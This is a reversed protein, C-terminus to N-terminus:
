LGIKLEIKGQQCIKPIVSLLGLNSGYWHKELLWVDSHTFEEFADGPSFVVALWLAPCLTISFWLCYKFNFVLFCCFCAQSTEKYLQCDMNGMHEWDLRKFFIIIKLKWFLSYHNKKTPHGNQIESRSGNGKFWWNRQFTTHKQSWVYNTSWDLRPHRKTFSCGTMNRSSCLSRIVKFTTYDSSTMISVSKMSKWCLM